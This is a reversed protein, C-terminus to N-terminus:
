KPMDELLKAIGAADPLDGLNKAYKVYEIRMDPALIFLAPLQLEEGEYKGHTYGAMKAKAIKALTGPSVLEAKSSAPAIGWDKYIQCQPDCIVTFPYPNEANEGRITEPESQLVVLAKAGQATILGYHEMLDHIDLQCLSCGIYRSFLLVTHKETLAKSLQLTEDYATASTFDPAAEGVHLHKEM